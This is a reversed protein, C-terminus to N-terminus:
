STREGMASNVSVTQDLLVTVEVISSICSSFIFNLKLCFGLIDSLTWGSKESQTLVNGRACHESSSQVACMKSQEAIPVDDLAVLM